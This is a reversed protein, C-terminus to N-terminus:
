SSRGIGDRYVDEEFGVSEIMEVWDIVNEVM